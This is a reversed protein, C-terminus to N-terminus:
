SKTIVKRIRINVEYRTEVVYRADDIVLPRRRLRECASRPTADRAATRIRAGPPEPGKASRASVRCCPDGACRRRLRSRLRLARLPGLVALTPAGLPGNRNAGSPRTECVHHAGKRLARRSLIGGGPAGGAGREPHLVCRCPSHCVSGASAEACAPLLPSLCGRASMRRPFSPSQATQCRSSPVLRALPM